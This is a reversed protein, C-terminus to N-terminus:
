IFIFSYREIGITLECENVFTVIVSLFKKLESDLIYMTAARGPCLCRSYKCLLWGDTMALRGKM